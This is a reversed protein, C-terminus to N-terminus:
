FPIIYSSVYMSNYLCIFINFVLGLFFNHENGVFDYSCVVMIIIPLKIDVAINIEEKRGAQVTMILEKGEREVLHLFSKM